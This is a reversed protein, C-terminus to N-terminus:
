VVVTCYKDGLEHISEMIEQFTSIQGATPRNESPFSVCGQNPTNIWNFDRSIVQISTDFQYIDESM